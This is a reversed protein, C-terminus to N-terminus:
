HSHTKTKVSRQQHHPSFVAELTLLLHEEITSKPSTAAFRALDAIGVLGVPHGDNDIVPVRRVQGERMLEEATEASDSVHCVLVHKSMATAIPIESLPRGQTYAAMCVDRDTIMGILRNGDDVVPVAGCDNEWMLHAAANATENANITVAPTHMLEKINM